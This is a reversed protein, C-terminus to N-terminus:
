LRRGGKICRLRGRGRAARRVTAARTAKKIRGAWGASAVALIMLTILAAEMM